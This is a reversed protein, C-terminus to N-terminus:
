YYYSFGINGATTQSVGMYVSNNFVYSEDIELGAESPHTSTSGNQFYPMKYREFLYPEAEDNYEQLITGQENPIVYYVASIYGYDSLQFNFCDRDFLLIKPVCTVKEESPTEIAKELNFKFSVFKYGDYSPFLYKTSEVKGFLQLYGVYYGQSSSRIEATEGTKENFWVKKNAFDVIGGEKIADENAYEEFWDTYTLAGHMKHDEIKELRVKVPDSYVIDGPEESDYAYVRVTYTNGGNVLFKDSFSETGTYTKDQKNKQPRRYKNHEFIRYEIGYIINEPNVGEAEDLANWDAQIYTYVGRYFAEDDGPQVETLTVVPKQEIGSATNGTVQTSEQPASNSAGSFSTEAKFIYETGKILKTLKLPSTNGHAAILNGETDKALNGEKDYAYITYQPTKGLKEEETLEDFSITAETKSIEEIKLNTPPNLNRTYFSNTEIYSDKTTENGNEDKYTVTMHLKGSTNDNYVYNSYSTAPTLNERIFFYNEITGIDMLLESDEETNRRLTFYVTCDTSDEFPVKFTYTAKTQDAEIKPICRNYETNSGYYEKVPFGAPSTKFSVYSQKSEGGETQVKIYFYYQKNPQLQKYMVSNETVEKTEITNSYSYNGDRLWTIYNTAGDVEPWEFILTTIGKKCNIDEAPIPKPVSAGTVVEIPNSEGIKIDEGSSDKEYTIVKYWYTKKDEATKDRIHDIYFGDTKIFDYKGTETDSRYLEVKKTFSGLEKWSIKVYTEDPDTVFKGEIEPAAKPKTSVKKTSCYTKNNEDTFEVKLTYEHGPILNEFKYPNTKPEWCWTIFNTDNENQYLRFDWGETKETGNFFYSISIYEMGASTVELTILDSEEKNPEPNTPHPCGTMLLIAALILVLSAKKM